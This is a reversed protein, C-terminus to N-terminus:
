RITRGSMPTRILSRSSWRRGNPTPMPVEQTTEEPMDLPIEEAKKQCGPALALVLVLFLLTLHTKKVSLYM